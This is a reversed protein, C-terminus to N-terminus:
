AAREVQVGINGLIPILPSSMVNRPFSLGDALDEALQEGTYAVVHIERGIVDSLDGIARLVPGAGASGVTLIDLDSSAHETGAAISGYVVAHQIAGGESGALWRLRSGVPGFALLLRRMEAARPSPPLLITRRTGTPGRELVGAAVLRALTRHVSEHSSGTRWEAEALEVPRGPHLTLFALLAAATRSGFLLDAPERHRSRYAVYDAPPKPRVLRLAPQM